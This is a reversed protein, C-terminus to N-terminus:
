IDEGLRDYLIAISNEPIYIREKRLIVRSRQNMTYDRQDQQFISCCSFEDASGATSGAHIVFVYNDTDTHRVMLYDAQISTYFPYTRPSYAYLVFEGDLMKKLQILAQLRPFIMDDYKQAKEVQRASIKGELIRDIIKASSYNPLSLDKMYQFGALHAFEEPTFSLLITFLRHKYGFTIRYRYDIIEKWAVAAQYLLDM